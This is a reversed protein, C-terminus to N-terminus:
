IRHPSLLVRVRVVGSVIVPFFCVCILPNLLQIIQGGARSVNSGCLSAFFGCIIHRASPKSLSNCDRERESV